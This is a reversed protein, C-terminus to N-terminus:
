FFIFLYFDLSIMNSSTQNKGRREFCVCVCVCVCMCHLESDSDALVEDPWLDIYVSALQFQYALIILPRRDTLGLAMIKPNLTHTHTFEIVRSVRLWPEIWEISQWLPIFIMKSYKEETHRKGFIVLFVCALYSDLIPLLKKQKTPSYITGSANTIFLILRM